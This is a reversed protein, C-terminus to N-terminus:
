DLSQTRNLEIVSLEISETPIKCHFLYLEDHARECYTRKIVTKQQLFLPHICLPRNKRLMFGIQRLNNRKGVIFVKPSYNTLQRTVVFDGHVYEEGM